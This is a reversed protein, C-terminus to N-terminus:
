GATRSGGVGAVLGWGLGGVLGGVWGVGWSGDGLWGGVLGGLWGGLWVGGGVGVGQFRRPELALRRVQRQPLQQRRLALLCILRQQAASAEAPAASNPPEFASDIRGYPQPDYGITGNQTPAGGM